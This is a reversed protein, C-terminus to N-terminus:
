QSPIFPKTINGRLLNANVSRGREIYKDIIYQVGVRSLKCHQRNTFLVGNAEAIPHDNLYKKLISAMDKGIPVIRSKNGKGHLVVTPCSNLNVDGKKLDILEQVRAGAEYLLTLITLDRREHKDQIDPLSFLFDMEELNLYSIVPVPIKKFEISLVDSCM